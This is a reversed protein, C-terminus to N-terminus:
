SAVKPGFEAGELDAQVWAASTAPDEPFLFQHDGYNVSPSVPSGSDYDAGDSRATCELTRSTADTRRATIWVAVGRIALTVFGLDPFNYTDKGTTGSVYSTDDDVTADDVELYNAGGGLPTLGSTHGAANPLLSVIKTDGWRTADDGSGSGDNMYCDHWRWTLGTGSVTHIIANVVASGFANKTNGTFATADPTASGNIYAAATGTSAHITGSMELYYWTDPLLLTSGTWLVTNASNAIVLQGTPTLGLQLHVNGVDTFQLFYRTAGPASTEYLFRFGEHYTAHSSVSRTMSAGFPIRACPLSRSSTSPMTITGTVLWKRSISTVNDKELGFIFRNAM